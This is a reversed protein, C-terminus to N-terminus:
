VQLEHIHGQCPILSANQLDRLQCELSQTVGVLAINWIKKKTHTHISLMKVYNFHLTNGWIANLIPVKLVGSLFVLHITNKLENNKMDNNLFFPNLTLCKEKCKGWDNKDFYINLIKLFLTLPGTLNCQQKKRYKISNNVFLVTILFLSKSLM